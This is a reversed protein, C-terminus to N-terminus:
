RTEAGHCDVARDHKQDIVVRTHTVRQGTEERRGSKFNGDKGRRGLEKLCVLRVRRRAEYEVKLWRPVLSIVM